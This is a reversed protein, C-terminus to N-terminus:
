TKNLNLSFPVKEIVYGLDNPIEFETDLKGCAAMADRCDNQCFCVCYQYDECAPPAAKKQSNYSTIWWDKPGLIIFNHSQENSEIFGNYERAFADVNDQAKELDTKKVAYWLLVALGMLVLLCLIAILIGGVEHKLMAKKNKM